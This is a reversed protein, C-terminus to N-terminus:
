LVHSRQRKWHLLASARVTTVVQRQEAPSGVSPMLVAARMLSTPISMWMRCPATRVVPLGAIGSTAHGSVCSVSMPFSTVYGLTGRSLM